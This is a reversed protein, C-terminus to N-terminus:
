ECGVVANATDEITKEYDDDIIEVHEGAKQFGDIYRKNDATLDAITCDAEVLRAEVESEYRIIEDFHNEIYEETM